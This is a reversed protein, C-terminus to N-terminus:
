GVALGKRNELSTSGVSNDEGNDSVWSCRGVQLCRSCAELVDVYDCAVYYIILRQLYLVADPSWVQQTRQRYPRWLTCRRLHGGNGSPLQIVQNM